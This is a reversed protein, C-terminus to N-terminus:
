LMGLSFLMNFPYFQNFKWNNQAVTFCPSVQPTLIFVGFIEMCAYSSLEEAVFTEWTKAMRRRLKMKKKYVEKQMFDWGCMLVKVWTVLCLIKLMWCTVFICDSSHLRRLLKTFWCLVVALSCFHFCFLLMKKITPFKLM